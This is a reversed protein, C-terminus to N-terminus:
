LVKEYWFKFYSKGQNKKRRKRGMLKSSVNLGLRKMLTRKNEGNRWSLRLGGSREETGDIKGCGCAIQKSPPSKDTPSKGGTPVEGQEGDKTEGIRPGGL